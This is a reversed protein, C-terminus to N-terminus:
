CDSAQSYRVEMKEKTEKIRQDKIVPNKRLTEVACLVEYSVEM